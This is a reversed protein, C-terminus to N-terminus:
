EPSMSNLKCDGAPVTILSLLERSDYPVAGVSDSLMLTATVTHSECVQLEGTM